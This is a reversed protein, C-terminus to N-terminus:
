DIYTVFFPAPLKNISQDTHLEVCVVLALAGIILPPLSPPNRYKSSVAEDSRWKKKEITAVKLTAHLDCQVCLNSPISGGRLKFIPFKEMFRMGLIASTARVTASCVCTYIWCRWTVANTWAGLLSINILLVSVCFACMFMSMMCVLLLASM